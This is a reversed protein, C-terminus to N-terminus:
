ERNGLDDPVYKTMQFKEANNVRGWHTTNEEKKLNVSTKRLPPLIYRLKITGEYHHMPSYQVEDGVHQSM